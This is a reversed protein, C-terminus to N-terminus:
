WRRLRAPRMRLRSSMMQACMSPVTSRTRGLSIVMVVMSAPSKGRRHASLEPASTMFRMAAGMTPPRMVEAKRVRSIMGTM